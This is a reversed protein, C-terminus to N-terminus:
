RPEPRISVESSSSVELVAAERSNPDIDRLAKAALPLSELFNTFPARSNQQHFTRLQANGTLPNTDRVYM